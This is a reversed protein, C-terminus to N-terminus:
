THPEGYDRACKYEFSDIIGFGRLHAEPGLQSLLRADKRLGGPSTSCNANVMRSLIVIYKNRKRVTIAASSKASLFTYLLRM